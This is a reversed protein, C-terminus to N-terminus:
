ISLHTGGIKAPDNAFHIAGIKQNAQIVPIVRAAHDLSYRWERLPRLRTTHTANYHKNQIYPFYHGEGSM